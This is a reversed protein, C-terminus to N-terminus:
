MSEPGGDGDERCIRGPEVHNGLSGEAQAILAHALDAYSEIDRNVASM